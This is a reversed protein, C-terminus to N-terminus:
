LELLKAGRGRQALLKALQDGFRVGDGVREGVVVNVWPSDLSTYEGEGPEPRGSRRTWTGGQAGNQGVPCVMRHLRGHASEREDEECTEIMSGNAVVDRVEYVALLQEKEYWWTLFLEGDDRARRCCECAICMDNWGEVPVSECETCMPTDLDMGECQGEKQQKMATNTKRTTKKM